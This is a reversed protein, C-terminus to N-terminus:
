AAGPSQDRLSSRLVLFLSFLAPGILVLTILMSIVLRVLAVNPNGYSIQSLAALSVFPDASHVHATQALYTFIESPFIHIALLGSITVANPIAFVAQGLFSAIATPWRETRPSLWRDLLMMMAGFLSGMALSIPLGFGMAQQLLVLGGGATLGASATLAGHSIAAYRQSPLLVRENEAGALWLLVRTLRPFRTTEGEARRLDGSHLWLDTAVRLQSLPLGTLDPGELEALLDRTLLTREPEQLRRTSRRILARALRRTQGIAQEGILAQLAALLVWAMLSLVTLGVTVFAVALIM